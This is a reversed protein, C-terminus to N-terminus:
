GVGQQDPGTPWAARQREALMLLLDFAQQHADTSGDHTKGVACQDEVPAARLDLAQLQQTGSLENPLANTSPVKSAGLEDWRGGVERVTLFAFMGFLVTNGIDGVLWAIAIDVVNTAWCAVLGLVIIADIVNVITMMTSKKAMFLIAGTIYNLMTIFGAVILWRLAVLTGSVYASGFIALGIPACFFIIVLAPVMIAMIMLTARRLLERRESLRFSVEPLLAQTVTSPLTTVLTAISIAISWYAAQKPGVRSLVVLPLVLMPLSGILSAVYMGGSFKAIDKTIEVDINPRFRHGRRALLVAFTVFGFLDSIVRATFAGLGGLFCLAPPAALRAVNPIIGFTAVRDSLRDAIFVTLLISLGVQLCATVVFVVGFLWGGLTFLSKSSPLALFIVSVPLTAITAGTLLTNIMATRDKATPLYRPVSYNTGFQTIYTVLTSGAVATASLGVDRTSFIHTLLTLAGYGSLAGIGLNIMLSASNKFLSEALFRRVLYLVAFRGRGERGALANERLARHAV